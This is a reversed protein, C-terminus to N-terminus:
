YFKWNQLIWVVLSCARGERGSGGSPMKDERGGLQLATQQSDNYIKTRIM